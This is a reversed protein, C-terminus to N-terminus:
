SEMALGDGGSRFGGSALKWAQGSGSEMGAVTRRYRIPSIGV